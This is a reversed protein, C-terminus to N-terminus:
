NRTFIYAWLTQIVPSGTTGGLTTNFELNKLTTTDLSGVAATSGFPVNTGTGATAITGQTMFMGSLVATSTAASESVTYWILEASLSWPISAMVPLLQAPSAGLATGGTGYKPTIILTATNVSMTIIGGARVCYIKGAKPDNAFIPTFTAAPWLPVITVTTYSAVAAVPPNVFPGDGFLQRGM